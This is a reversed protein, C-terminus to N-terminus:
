NGKLSIFQIRLSSRTILLYLEVPPPISRLRGLYYLGQVYPDGHSWCTCSSFSILNDPLM